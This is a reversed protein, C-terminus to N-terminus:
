GGNQVVPLLRTFFARYRQLCVRLDETSVSEGSQWQRELGEREHTFSDVIQQVLEGVLEHAEAVSRRPDDVFGGQINRWREGAEASTRVPLYPADVRPHAADAPATSGANLPLEPSPEPSPVPEAYVPIEPFVPVTAEERERRGDSDPFHPQRLNM